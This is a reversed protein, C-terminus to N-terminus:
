NGVFSSELDRRKRIFRSSLIARKLRFALPLWQYAGLVKLRFELPWDTPEASVRGVSFERPKSFATVPVTTFVREYGADRCWEILEANFEGYPFSFTTVRRKLINELKIRSQVLERRADAESLAPLRPHTLTHSGISILYAPLNKFQEAPAIRERREPSFQPWWSAFDGMAETTVFISAPINRRSLEPIANRITSEFGDDFSVSSYHRGPLLEVTQDIAIPTTLRVIIDMQNAFLERERDRIAHYYIVVCIPNLRRGLTLLILRWCSSVICFAVSIFLSVIRRLKKYVRAGM